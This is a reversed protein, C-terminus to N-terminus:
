MAQRPKEFRVGAGVAIEVSKGALRLALRKLSESESFTSGM